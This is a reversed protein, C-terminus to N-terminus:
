RQNAHKKIIVECKDFTMNTRSFEVLCDETGIYSVNTQDLNKYILGFLAPRNIDYRYSGPGSFGMRSTLRVQYKEYNWKNILEVDDTGMIIYPAAGIVVYGAGGIAVIMSVIKVWKPIRLKLFLHFGGFVVLTVLAYNLYNSSFRYNTIVLILKFVVISIILFALRRKM